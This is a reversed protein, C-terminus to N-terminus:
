KAAKYFSKLDLKFKPMKEEDDFAGLDVALEISADPDDLVYVEYYLSLIYSIGSFILRFIIWPLVIFYKIDKMTWFFIFYVQVAALLLAISWTQFSMFFGPITKWPM